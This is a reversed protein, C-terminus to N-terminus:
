ICRGGDVEVVNGTLYNAEDSALFAVTAAVDSPECARGLPINAIHPKINEETLAVGDGLNIQMMGTNGISPAIAVSRIGHAAYELAISKSIAIIAAKTACYYTIKPVPRLAGVSAIHIFVGSKQNIFIPAVVSISHYVSKLNVDFLRDYFAEDVAHTDKGTMNIGANNVVVDLRGWKMVTKSVASEWDGRKSVDGKLLWRKGDESQSDSELSIDVVTVHYGKSIFTDAIALGFGAAGGTVLAVKVINSM